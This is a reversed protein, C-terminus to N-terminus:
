IRFFKNTEDSNIRKNLKKLEISLIFIWQLFAGITLREYLGGFPSNNAVSAAAMGGTVFLFLFSVFTYISFAKLSSYKILKSLSLVMTFMTLLSSLIALILHIIGAKTMVVGRPDQPFFLIIFGILGILMILCAMLKMKMGSIVEFYQFLGLGFLLLSVNYLIFLFQVFPMKPANSAILESVTNYLHSYNEMEFGGILCAFVYFIPAVIGFIPYFKKM